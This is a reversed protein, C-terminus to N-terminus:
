PILDARVYGHQSTGAPWEIEVWWYKGIQEYYWNSVTVEQGIYLTGIKSNNTGPASRVVVDTHKMTVKSSNAVMSVGISEAKSAPEEAFAPIALSLVTVLCLLMSIVKKM